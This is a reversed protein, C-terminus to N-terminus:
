CCFLVNTILGAPAQRRDKKVAAAQRAKKDQSDDDGMVLRNLEAELDAVDEDDDNGASAPDVLTGGVDFLGLDSLQQRAQSGSAAISFFIIM